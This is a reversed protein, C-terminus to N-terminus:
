KCSLMTYMQLVELLETSGKLLLSIGFRSHKVCIKISTIITVNFLSSPSKLLNEVLDVYQQLKSFFALLNNLTVTLM